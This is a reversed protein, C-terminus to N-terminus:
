YDDLQKPDVAPMTELKWLDVDVDNSQPEGRTSRGEAVWQKLRALMEKVRSKGSPRAWTRRRAVEVHM